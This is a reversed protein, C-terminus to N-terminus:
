FFGRLVERVVTQGTRSGLVDDVVNPQTRTSTRTRTRPSMKSSPKKNMDKLARDYEAQLKAQEKATAEASREAREAREAGEAAEAAEVAADAEAAANMKVALIKRASKRDVATGYTTRLPSAAMAASMVAADTPSMSGRPARLCTWAVPTPAGKENMVTIIAEGTALSTLVEGLDYGSTM